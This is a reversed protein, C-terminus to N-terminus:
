HGRPFAAKDHEIGWFEVGFRGRVEGSAVMAGLVGQLSADVAAAAQGLEGTFATVVLADGGIAAPAGEGRRSSSAAAGAGFFAGTRM